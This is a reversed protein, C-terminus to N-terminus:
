GYEEGVWALNVDPYGCEECYGDFEGAGCSPCYDYSSEHYNNVKRSSSVNRKPPNGSNDNPTCLALVVIVFLIIALVEAGM